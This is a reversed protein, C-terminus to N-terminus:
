SHSQATVVPASAQKGRITAASDRADPKVLRSLRSNHNSCHWFFYTIGAPGQLQYGKLRKSKICKLSRQYIWPTLDSLDFQEADRAGDTGFAM